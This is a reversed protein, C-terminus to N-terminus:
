AGFFKRRTYENLAVNPEPNFTFIANVRCIDTTNQSVCHLSRNGAFLYLTGPALQPVVMPHLGYSCSGDLASVDFNPHRDLFDRSDPIYMFAGLNLAGIQDCLRESRDFHWGLQDGKEFFNLYVGGLADASCHLQSLHFAEQLLQKLGDWRFLELLEPCEEALEAQNILVKSSSFSASRVKSSTAESNELYVNHEEFSRFGCGRKKLKEASSLLKKVAGPKVFGPVECIGKSLIDHRCVARAALYAARNVIGPVM